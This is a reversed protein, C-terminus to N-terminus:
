FPARLELELRKGHAPHTFALAEAHLLLRGEGADGYLRDGRIPAGLGLPHAAHARLQHTRGTIPFLAVRSAGGEDAILRWRTVAQRGHVPDHIQRPRDDPDGRLPLSIVGERAPGDLRSSLVAVYRKHVERRLFQAQLARHTEEDLAALLLGSTDLDLRHVLLPGKADPFRARLRTLVSDRLAPADGRGPTSLLGEPKAVVVLHRDEYVLQLSAEEFPAPAFLRPPATPVGELMWPLLPGCKDRCAPYFAGEVRGGSLPPPGWWFEAMALPRLGRRYAEALLKPAACDGAGSPPLADGYLTLLPRCEGKANPVEYTEHIRRMLERCVAHRLRELAGARRELRRLSPDLAAREEAHRAELRRAEAKDGRSQQDLAHVAAADVAVARELHRRAKREAHAQKMAAREEAHRAQLEAFASRSRSLEGDRACFAEARAVLGKVIAEGPPEVAERRTRNFLPPVFGSHDWRGGLMGSFARLVHREGDAGEAVLVGFMKGEARALRGVESGRLEAQLREAAERALPPPGLQDFPSNVSM